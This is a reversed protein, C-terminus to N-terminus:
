SENAGGKRAPKTKRIGELKYVASLQPLFAYEDRKAHQWLEVPGVSNIIEGAITQEGHSLVLDLAALVGHYFDSNVNM